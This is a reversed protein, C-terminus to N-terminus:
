ITKIMFEVFDIEGASLHYKAYLQRDIEEVSGSWDIDSSRTFDQLPVYDWVDINIDQTVKLVSLMLRAFKTRLYKLANIAEEETDFCGISKFSQTYGINPDCLEPRGLIRAPIPNGLQGAAGDSKSLLVKWKRLNTGEINLYKVPIFRETRSGNYLGIIKIEDENTKERKFIDLQKFIPTTLRKEKGGSGIISKYQPYDKYLEDLNFKNQLYVISGLSEDPKLKGVKKVIQNLMPYATFFAISGFDQATDRLTVAVGGTFLLGAFVDSINPRYWVLKLNKDDLMKRNWSAPTKGANFLFRAPTILISKSCIKYSIDMFYNYIPRDSTDKTPEQYPPNGVIANFNMDKLKNILEEKNERYILDYTYFSNFINEKPIGLMVFIKRTCEYTLGSTPLSYINPLVEKGYRKYIAYEFEGIKGAINLFKSQATIDDPLAAVMDDAVWGPTTVEANSLRSFRRLATQIDADVDGSLTDINHIKLEWESLAGPNITAKIQKLGEIDLQLNNAIRKGDESDEANHIVDSLNKEELDSLYAFLLTKFYFTQLRKRFSKLEDNQSKSDTAQENSKGEGTENGTDVNDGGDEKKHPEAKFVNGSGSMEPQQKLIEKLTDDGFISDDVPIDFTEDMISKNRSYDRVADFIDVPEVQRLKNHNLWIIPSFRLEKELRKELEDNGRVYTNINGILSKRNQMVFMRTPDFDVLLTQPKMNYVITRDEGDVNEDETKITKVYQSQLRYIAQDYEQPSSAGRLFLMTDWHKVTSGTLMKGVTLTISKKDLVECKEIDNKINAVYQPNSSEFRSSQNLGSINIIEYENLRNFTHTKILEEMADCSARFPLVMVMHRCMKGELIKEYNLFSFINDDHKKGDIAMLLDLVEQEYLFKKYKGEADKNLSQPRLLVNLRYDIGEDELQHLRNISSQNLNFAFRIMQPFGYYPNKWENEGLHNEYWQQQSEAIDTYQVSAIIDDQQFEGDMLIRYPTGSLHLKVKPDFLKVPEKLADLADDYDKVERETEQKGFDRLVKGTEESRAAFHSEDIILLDIDGKENHKFLDKHREKINDGLLDQLTLFVVVKFGENMLDSIANPRNDLSSASLFKYGEFIIPREVNEKWEEKVATKGSVVVVLKAGMEKACCLATFTKGFRMVAYMLLNTRGNNWATLFNKIVAKQNDRPKWDADRPYEQEAVPLRDEINYFAYDSKKNDFCEQIDAIATEVDWKKAGLFFEKSVYVGKDFDSEEARRFGHETLYRHVAYDRYFTDESVKAIHEYVWKIDKYHAAWERLRVQVPRYTDGVKLFSPVTDTEFAYIKPEVRGTIVQDIIEYGEM